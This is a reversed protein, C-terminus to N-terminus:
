ESKRCGGEKGERNGVDTLARTEGGRRANGDNPALWADDAKTRRRARAGSVMVTSRLGAEPRLKVNGGGSCRWMVIRAVM